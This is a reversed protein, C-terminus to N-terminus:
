QTDEPEWASIIRVIREAAQKRRETEKIASDIWEIWPSDILGCCCGAMSLPCGECDYGYFMECLPCQCSLEAIESYLEKPVHNKAYCEPHEALYTWLELSLEKAEKQTMPKDTKKM